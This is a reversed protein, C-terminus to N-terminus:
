ADSNEEAEQVKTDYWQILADRPYLRSRGWRISPPAHNEGRMRWTYLSTRSVKLITCADQTTLYDGDPLRLPM